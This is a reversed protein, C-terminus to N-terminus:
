VINSPKIDRHILGAKHLHALGLNLTLGLELCESVPLHGRQLLVKALTKPVTPNQVSSAPHQNSSSTIKVDSMPNALRTRLLPTLLIWNRLDPMSHRTM